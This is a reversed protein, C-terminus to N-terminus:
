EATGMRKKTVFLVAAALVLAGGVAYFITTGIGGTEPLESGKQNVIDSSLTGTTSTIVEGTLGDGSLSVFATGEGNWVIEHNATVTFEVDAMTNYGNPTVTEVLKYEGDDLGKWSATFSDGNAAAVCTGQSVWAGNVNKFLEFTAGELPNGAQDVKNVVVKYTFVIVIDEPTNGTNNDGEGSDNPNNSYELYVKNPNGEAGIVANENLELDSAM